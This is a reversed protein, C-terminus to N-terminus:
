KILCLAKHKYLLKSLNDFYLCSAEIVCMCTYSKTWYKTKIFVYGFCADAICQKGFVLVYCMCHLSKALDKSLLYSDEIRLYLCLAKHKFSLLHDMKPDCEKVLSFYKIFHVLDMKKDKPLYYGAM